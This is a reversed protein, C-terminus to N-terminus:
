YYYENNNNNNDEDKNNNNNKSSLSLLIQNFCQEDPVCVSIECMLQILQNDSILKDGEGVEYFANYYENLIEKETKKNFVVEPHIKTNFKGLLFKKSFIQNYNFNHLKKIFNQISNFRENEIFIVSNLLSLYDVISKKDSFNDFIFYL